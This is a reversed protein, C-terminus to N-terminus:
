TAASRMSRGSTTPAAPARARRAAPQLRPAAPLGADADPQHPRSSSRPKPSGAPPRSRRARAGSTSCRFRGSRQQLEDRLRRARTSTPLKRGDAPYMPRPTVSYDVTSYMNFWWFLNACTFSPDIPARASGSRRRRCWGPEVAALVSRATTARIGATASSATGDPPRGTLYDSQATCTVAPFASRHAGAGSQAWRRCARRAAGSRADATLGVVNLVVTKADNTRASWDRVRADRAHRRRRIAVECQELVWDYERGISELLDMKLGPPLVDWTYTEIELHHPAPRSPTSCSMPARLGADLRARRLRAHLAARSLSHALERGAGGAGRARRRSRPLAAAGDPAARRGSAPLDRRCVGSGTAFPGRVRPIAPFRVMSRRASSCAASRSARPASAIWRAGRPDEYEVAFHCCDFCIRIHELLMAARDHWVGLSAALLAAGVPLLHREFFDLTEDTNEILLGAGARHRPPDAQRNGRPARILAEAVASSTATDDAGLRPRRCRWGHSTRSRRPRSAATSGAPVLRELIQILDLTYRSARMTAGTRRTSTRRSRRATFPGYPFGNIIAVYLGQDDLFRSVGRTARRRAARPCGEGVASLRM